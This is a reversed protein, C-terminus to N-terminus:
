VKLPCGCYAGKELCYNLVSRWHPDRALINPNGIVVLLAQARTIAVNLRRPCFIFGLNHQVDSDVFNELSRVVSLLVVKFEQGQFEEVTGVKPM